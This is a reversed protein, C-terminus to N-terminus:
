RQPSKLESGAAAATKMDPKEAGKVQERRSVGGGKFDITVQRPDQDSFRGDPGLWGRGASLKAAPEKSTIKPDVTVVAGDLELAFEVTIKGTVTRAGDQSEEKMTDLVREFRAGLVKLFQPENKTNRSLGELFAVMDFSM